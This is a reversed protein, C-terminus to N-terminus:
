RALLAGEGLADPVSAAGLMLPWTLPESVLRPRTIAREGFGAGGFGFMSTGLPLRVACVETPGAPEDAPTGPPDRSGLALGVLPPPVAVADAPPPSPVPGPPPFPPLPGGPTLMEPLLDPVGDGILPPLAFEATLRFGGRVGSGAGAGAGTLGM